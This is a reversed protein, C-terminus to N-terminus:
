RVSIKQIIAKSHRKGSITQLSLRYTGSNLKHGAFRETLKYSGKGAKREKITVTGLAKAKGHVIETLKLQVTGPKTMTFRVEVPHQATLTHASM